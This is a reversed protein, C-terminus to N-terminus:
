KRIFSVTCVRVCVCLEYGGGVPNQLPTTTRGVGFTGKTVGPIGKEMGTCM